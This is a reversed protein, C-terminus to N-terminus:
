LSSLVLHRVAPQRTAIVRAILEPVGTRPLPSGHPVRTSVLQEGGPDVLMVAEWAPSAEVARAALAPFRGLDRRDLEDATALIQLSRVHTEFERHLALSLARAAARLGRETELREGRAFLAAPVVGFLLVPLLAACVLVVLHVRLPRAPRSTKM